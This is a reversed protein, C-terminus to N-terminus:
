ANGKQADILRRLFPRGMPIAKCVFNLKGVISQLTHLTVKKSSSDVLQSLQHVLQAIKDEPIRIEGRAADITLGLFTLCTTPQVTKQHAIPVGLNDALQLSTNLMNSCKNLDVAALIFDDLYHAIDQSCTTAKIAWEIFTSFSEFLACSISCGFPLCKDIYFQEQFKIGFTASLGITGCAPPKFASKVGFKSMYAGRGLNQIMAVAQDFSTYQVTCAEQPIFDNISSGQPHSLHHILRFAAEGHVSSDVKKPVLGIPSVRHQQTYTSARAPYAFAQQKHSPLMLQLWLQGDIAGWSRFPDREM